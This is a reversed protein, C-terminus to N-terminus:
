IGSTFDLATDATETPIGGGGAQPCSGAIATPEFSGTLHELGLRTSTGPDAGGSFQNADESDGFDPHDTLTYPVTTTGLESGSQHTGSYWTFTLTGTDAGTFACGASGTSEFTAKGSVIDSNTRAPSYCDDLIVTGTISTNREATTLPPEYKMTVTGECALDNSLTLAHAAPGTATITVAAASVAATVLFRKIATTVM